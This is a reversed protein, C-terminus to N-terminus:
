GLEPPPTFIDGNCAPILGSQFLIFRSNGPHLPGGKEVSTFLADSGDEGAREDEETEHHEEILVFNPGAGIGTLTPLVAPTLLVAICFLVSCISFMKKETWIATISYQNNLCSRFYILQKCKFDAMGQVSVTRAIKRPEFEM